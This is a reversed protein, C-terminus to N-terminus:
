IDRQRRAEYLLVAASVSVNLSDNHGLMPIKIIHDAANRWFTTLGTDEAGFVFATGEKYNADTYFSETQLAAAYVNIKNEECWKKISAADAFAIQNSFVTGVSSRIVNPHFFNHHDQSLIVADAGVADCTRLIAGLNGPKEINELIVILPNEPLSIKDLSLEAEKMVALMYSADERYVLKTFLDHKLVTAPIGGFEKEPFATIYKQDIYVEEIHYHHELAVRIEKLGEVIFLKQQRRFKNDNSLKLLKKFRDNHPSELLLM